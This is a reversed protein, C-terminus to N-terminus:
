DYEPRHAIVVVINPDAPMANEHHMDMQDEHRFVTASHKCFFNKVVQARYEGTDANVELCFQDLEIALIIVYVQQYVIRWFHGHRFQHVTELSYGAQKYVIILAAAAYRLWIPGRLM